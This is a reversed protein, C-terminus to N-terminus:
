LVLGSREPAPKKKEHRSRLEIAIEARHGNGPQLQALIVEDGAGVGDLFWSWSVRM